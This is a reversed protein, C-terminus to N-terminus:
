NPQDAQRWGGTKLEGDTRRATGESRGGIGGNHSEMMLSVAGFSKVGEEGM